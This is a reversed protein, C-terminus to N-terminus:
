PNLNLSAAKRAIQAEVFALQKLLAARRTQLYSMRILPKAALQLAPRSLKGKTLPNNM